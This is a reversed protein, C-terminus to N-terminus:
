MRRDGPRARLRAQPGLYLRTLGLGVAIVGALEAAVYALTLDGYPSLEASRTAVVWAITQESVALLESEGAIYMRALWAAGYALVSVLVLAVSSLSRPEVVLRLTTTWLAAWAIGLMPVLLVAVYDTAPEWASLKSCLYLMAISLGAVFALTLLGTALLRLEHAMWRRVLETRREIGVETREGLNALVSDLSRM